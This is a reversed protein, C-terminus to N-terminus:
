SKRRFTVPPFLRELEFGWVVKMLVRGVPRGGQLVTSPSDFSGTYTQEETFVGGPGQFPPARQRMCYKESHNRRLAQPEGALSVRNLVSGVAM